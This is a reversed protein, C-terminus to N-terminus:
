DHIQQELICNLAREFIAPCIRYTHKYVDGASRVGSPYLLYRLDVGLIGAINSFAAFEGLEEPMWCLARSRHNAFVLNSWAAGSPGALFRANAFYGVQKLFPQQEPHLVEFGKKVAIGVLEDQNYSRRDGRALFIREPWKEEEASGAAFRVANRLYHVAEPPTVFHEASFKNSRRLNFPATVFPEIFTPRHILYSRGEDLYVRKRGPALVRLIEAFSPIELVRRNVLLPLGRMSEPLRPLVQLKTVIELLWHYYNFSGNGGLFIGHEVNVPAVERRVIAKRIGHAVLHGCANSAYSSSLSFAQDVYFCNRRKDYPYSSCVEVSQEELVVTKLQPFSLPRPHIDSTCEFTIPPYCCGAREPVVDVIQSATAEDFGRISASYANRLTNTLLRAGSLYPGTMSSDRTGLSAAINVAIPAFRSLIAM